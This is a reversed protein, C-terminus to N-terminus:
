YDFSAFAHYLNWYTEDNNKGRLPMCVTRGNLFREAAVRAGIKRSYQDKPHKYSVAVELMKLGPTFNCPRYAVTCVTGNNNDFHVFKVREKTAILTPPENPEAIKVLQTDKKTLLNDTAEQIKNLINSVQSSHPFPWDSMPKM